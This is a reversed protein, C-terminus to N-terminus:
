LLLYSDCYCYYVTISSKLMLAHLSLGGDESTNSDMADLSTQMQLRAVAQLLNQCLVLVQGGPDLVDGYVAM